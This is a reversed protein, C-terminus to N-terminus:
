YGFATFCTCLSGFVFAKYCYFFLSGLRTSSNWTITVFNNWSDYWTARCYMELFSRDNKLFLWFVVQLFSHFAPHSKISHYIWHGPIISMYVLLVFYGWLYPIDEIKICSYLSETSCHCCWFGWHNLSTAMSPLLKTLCLGFKKEKRKHFGYRLLM